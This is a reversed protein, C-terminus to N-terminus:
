GGSARKRALEARVVALYNANQDPERRTLNDLHIRRQLVVEDVTVVRAGAARANLLWELFDGARRHEPLLGYREFAERRALMASSGWAAQPAPDVYLRAREHSPLEPSVFQTMRGFCLDATAHAALVEARVALSHAPWLDDADLLALLDTSLAGIARNRASAPGAPAQSITRVAPAFSAAIRATEDTSGDDVVVVDAPPETQGLVSELAAGIYRAADRAPM